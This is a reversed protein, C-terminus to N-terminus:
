PRDLGKLSLLYTVVDAMGQADLRDEYSPMSSSMIVEYDRLAAKDFSLLRDGEDILQVTFTDENLRRGTITIGDRTIVRVSRNVPLINGTPDLLAKQLAAASRITGIDSLDPALRPGNGRVRHCAACQGSGEFIGRGRAADGLSTGSDNLSRMNRLYAVVMTLESADFAFAPMATNPIGTRILARLEYDVTARRIRGSGLAVGAVHDGSAGHCTACQAAYIRAGYQIDLPAYRSAPPEAASLSGAVALVVLWLSMWRAGRQICQSM